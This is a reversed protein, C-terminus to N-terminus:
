TLMFIYKYLFHMEKYYTQKKLTSFLVAIARVFGRYKYEHSKTNQNLKFMYCPANRNITQPTDALSRLLYQLDAIPLSFPASSIGAKYPRNESHDSILSAKHGISRFKAKSYTM